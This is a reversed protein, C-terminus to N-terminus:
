KHVVEKENSQFDYKQKKSSTLCHSVLFPLCLLKFGNSIRRILLTTLSTQLEHGMLERKAHYHELNCCKYNWLCLVTSHVTYTVYLWLPNAEVKSFSTSNHVTIASVQRQSTNKSVKYGFETSGVWLTPDNGTILSIDKPIDELLSSAGVVWTFVSYRM